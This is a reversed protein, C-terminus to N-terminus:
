VVDGDLILAGQGEDVRGEAREMWGDDKRFQVQWIM